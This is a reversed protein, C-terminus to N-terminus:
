GFLKFIKGKNEEKVGIGSDKVVIRILGQGANLIKLDIFGEPTYKLANMLLNLVIQRVRQRDSRVEQVESSFHEKDFKLVLGKIECRPKLM